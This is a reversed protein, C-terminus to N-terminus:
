LMTLSTKVRSHVELAVLARGCFQSAPVLIGSRTFPDAVAAAFEKEPRARINNRAGATVGGRSRGLRAAAAM